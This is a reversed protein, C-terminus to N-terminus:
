AITRKCPLFIAFTVGQGSRGYHTILGEHATIIRKVMFLGIGTGGNNQRRTFRPNFICDEDERPIGCGNDEFHILTYHNTSDLSLPMLAMSPIRVEIRVYKEPKDFWYIANTFLEKFCTHLRERDGLVLLSPDCIIECKVGENVAIVSTEKLIAAIPIPRLDIKQALALSGFETLYTKLREVSIRMDSIVELIDPLSLNETMKALASLDGELASVPDRCKHAAVYSMLEWEEDTQKRTADSSLKNQELIQTALHSFTRLALIDLERIPQLQWRRDVIFMGIVQDNSLLPASLVQGEGLRRALDQSWTLVQHESAIDSLTIERQTVDRFLDKTTKEDLAFWYDNLAADLEYDHFFPADRLIDNLTRRSAVQAIRRFNERVASGLSSRYILRKPQGHYELFIARSFGLAEGCTLFVLLRKLISTRHPDVALWRYLTPLSNLSLFQISRTNAIAGVAIDGMSNLHTLAESTIDHGTVANDVVIQGVLEYGFVLPVVAWPLHLPKELVEGDPDNGFLTSSYIRARPDTLFTEFTHKAYPNTEVSIRTSLFQEPHNMGLSDRAVFCKIEPRYEFLRVRDFPFDRLGEMVLRMATTQNEHTKETAILKSLKRVVSASKQIGISTALQSSITQAFPQLAVIIDHKPSPPKKCWSTVVGMVHNEFILPIGVIGTRINFYEVGRQNVHPNTSPNPILLIKPNHFIFTILATDTFKYRPPGEAGGVADCGLQAACHLERNVYDARYVVGVDLGHMYKLSELIQQLVTSQIQMADDLGEGARAYVLGNRVQDM